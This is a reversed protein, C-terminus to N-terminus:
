HYLPISSLTLTSLTLYPLIFVPPICLHIFTLSLLPLYIPAHSHTHKLPLTLPHIFPWLSSPNFIYSPSYFRNGWIWQEADVWGMLKTVHTWTVFPSLASPSLLVGQSHNMVCLHAGLLILSSSLGNKFCREWKGFDAGARSNTHIFKLSTLTLSFEWIASIERVNWRRAVSRDWIDLGTWYCCPLNTISCCISMLWM